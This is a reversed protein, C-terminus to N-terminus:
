ALQWQERILREAAPLTVQKVGVSGCEFSIFDQYGIIKLGRLGDIYNDGEDEGPMKRRKRSAIHMHHLYPGASIIAGMDSTEEWTMHWFDGMVAAGPSAADRCMAAADSVQRLFFAERRNLPELLLRTGKEHAFDGLEKIEPILIERAERNDLTTQDNFAPVVIMGTANLAAAAGLIDKISSLAEKRKTPDESILVGHFGACVASVKINRNKLADQYEVVRESLGRGSPEIGAFGHQELFDLKETLTEGPAVNEQCSLKLQAASAPKPIKLKGSDACGFALAASSAGTLKFFDRRNISM